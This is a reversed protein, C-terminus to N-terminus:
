LRCSRRAQSLADLLTTGLLSKVMRTNLRPDLALVPRHQIAQAMYRRSAVLDRKAYAVLGLALHANGYATARMGRLDTPVDPGDFVASLSDLLIQRNNELNLHQLDGRWGRPQDGCALEYFVGVREAMPPYLRFSKELHLRGQVLNDRQFYALAATLHASAYARRRQIPWRELAGEAPGFHKHVAKLNDTFMHDINSSLGGAHIRYLVLVEAVGRFKYQSSFRLWMDWDACGQLAEDFLGVEDLVSKRVTVTSPPFFGGDILTSYLREPAVTRASTQPLLHGESDIMQAGTYCAALNPDELFKLTVAALYNPKWVDDDDLFSIFQGRAARVGTNRAGAMGRNAQWIFHISDAFREAVEPTDDTSGDDVVVVEFDRWTQALASSITQELYAAHNFAPIVVSVSPTTM